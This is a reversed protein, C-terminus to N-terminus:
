GNAAAPAPSAEVPEPAPEPATNALKAHSKPGRHLLAGLTKVSSRMVAGEPTRVIGKWSAYTALARSGIEARRMAIEGEIRAALERAARAVPLYAASFAITERAEDADFTHGAVEGYRTAITAVAETFDNPVSVGGVLSRRTRADPAPPLALKQAISDIEAISDAALASQSVRVKPPKTAASAASPSSKRSVSKKTTPM